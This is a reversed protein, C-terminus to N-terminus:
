GDKRGAGMRELFLEVFREGDIEVPVLANPAVPEPAGIRDHDGEPIRPRRVLGWNIVTQGYTLEGKTEVDVRASLSQKALSPDVALGVALPDHLAASDYGRAEASEIYHEAMSAVAAAVPTGVRKLRTVHSRRLAAQRTAELTLLTVQIGSAFVAAAAEADTYINFEAASTANGGTYAGGMVILDRMQWQVDPALALSTALNTLPGVAVVTIRGPHALVTEAILEAAPRRDPRTVPEPLRLGGLGDAGHVFDALELRKRLPAAAGRAVPIDRRGAFELIKLANETTKEVPVNGAVTTIAEVRIEPSRLAFLIALADDIGPDVDLLIRRPSPTNGATM